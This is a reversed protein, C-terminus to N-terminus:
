SCLAAHERASVFGHGQRWPKHIKKTIDPSHLINTVYEWTPKKALRTKKKPFSNKQGHFFGMARRSFARRLGWVMSFMPAMLACCDVAWSSMGIHRPGFDDSAVLVFRPDDTTSSYTFFYKMLYPHKLLWELLFTYFWFLDTGGEVFCRHFSFAQGEREDGSIAM